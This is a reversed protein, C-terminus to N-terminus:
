KARSLAMNLGRAGAMPIAVTKKITGPLNTMILWTSEPPQEDANTTIHYYRITRRQGFIIERIYRTETNGHLLRSYVPVLDHLPPTARPLM